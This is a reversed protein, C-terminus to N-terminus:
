AVAGALPRCVERLADRVATEPVDDRVTVGGATRPLVWRQRGRTRKKDSRLLRLVEDPDVEARVPLGFRDLLGDVRNVLAADATGVLAGLRAAARMGVAVAEGHLYRYGAAEIAHGLTHGFNLIERLGAEREDAAVVAAKVGINRRIAYSLAPEDQGLLRSANRELFGLLDGRSGGPTSPQIVAHKVVEAWGSTFDRAPLTRLLAPDVVVLPPQYFAGILNKGAPHNIGTKGGVSSDVMALLTTPVQVLGLGRLATAAVFGALDGVVGGGLAVVVDGREAGGGLMRDYLLSAGALSKSGEGAPVAHVDVALGASRLSETAAPAHLPGVGEDTVVWARQARPYHSSTLRGLHALSGPAVHIASSGSPADLRLSPGDDPGSEALLGAIEAAVQAAPSADVDLTLHARDYATRRSELLATIRGLPDDGALMPRDASEGEAASQARLRALITEPRADLAVTLVDPGGLLDPSWVAPDVVAGGGTAVVVRGDGLAEALVSREAARFAPEGLRAFVAPVPMGLRAEVEADSDVLSRGLVEALLRGVTTKGTGSFGVLVLKDGRPM